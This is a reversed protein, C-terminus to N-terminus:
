IHRLATAKSVHEWDRGGERWGEKRIVRLVWKRGWYLGFYAKINNNAVNQIVFKIWNEDDYMRAFTHLLYAVQLGTLRTHSEKATDGMILNKTHCSCLPKHGFITTTDGISVAHQCALLCCPWRTEKRNCIVCVGHKVAVSSLTTCLVCCCTGKAVDLIVTAPAQVFNEHWVHTCNGRGGVPQVSRSLPPRHHHSCIEM